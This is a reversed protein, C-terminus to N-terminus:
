WALPRRYKRRESTPDAENRIVPNKAPARITASIPVAVVRNVAVSAATRALVMGIDAESRRVAVSLPSKMRMGSRTSNM